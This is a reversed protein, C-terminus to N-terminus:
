QCYCSLDTLAPVQGAQDSIVVNQHGVQTITTMTSPPLVLYFCTNELTLPSLIMLCHLQDAVM